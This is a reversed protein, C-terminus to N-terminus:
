SIFLRTFLAPHEMGGWDLLPLFCPVDDVRFSHSRAAAELIFLKIDWLIQMAQTQGLPLLRQCASIFGAASQHLYAAVAREENLQLAASVLGFATAHHIAGGAEFAKRLTPFDGVALVARLFNRGLVASGDRSERAPKLAGLRDNIGRWSELDV